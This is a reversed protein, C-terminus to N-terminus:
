RQLSLAPRARALVSKKASSEGGDIDVRVKVKSAAGKVAEQGKYARLVTAARTTPRALSTSLTSFLTLLFLFSACM